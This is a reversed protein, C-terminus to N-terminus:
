LMRDRYAHLLLDRQAEPNPATLSSAHGGHNEATGRIVAHIPHGRREAVSRRELVVVGIGEGRVYGNARRDFTKCRGDPSLMGNKGMTVYAGADLLLNTGGVIALDIEGRHLAEAARHVAVLSSSCATDVTTSM